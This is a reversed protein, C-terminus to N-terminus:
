NTFSPPQDELLRILTKTDSIDIDVRISPITLNAQNYYFDELEIGPGVTVEQTRIFVPDGFNEQTILSVALQKGHLLAGQVERSDNGAYNQAILALFLWRHMFRKSM